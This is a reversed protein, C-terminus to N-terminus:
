TRSNPGFTYSVRITPKPEPAFAAIAERMLQSRTILDWTRVTTFTTDM